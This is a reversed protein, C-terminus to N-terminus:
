SRRLVRRVLGGAQEIGMMATCGLYVAGYPVLILGGAVWPKLPPLGLKVGWAVAAGIIAALWLRASELDRAAFQWEQEVHRHMSM